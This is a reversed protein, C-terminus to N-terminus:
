PTIADCPATNCEDGLWDDDCTCVAQGSSSDCHGNVCPLIQCDTVYEIECTAGGYGYGNVDQPCVCGDDNSFYIAITYSCM